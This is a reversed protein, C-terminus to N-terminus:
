FNFGLSASGGVGEQRGFYGFVEANIVLKGSDTPMMTLGIEGFGSFGKTEPPDTIPDGAYVGRIKGDFEHEGAAGVYFRTTDGAISRSLRAGVRARSSDVAEMEVKDGFDTVFDDPNARTWFYRGYAELDSKESLDFRHGLGLHAGYYGNYTEYSHVGPFQIWPDKTLSFENHFGGGRVSSEIFTNQAFLLKFLLGGGYHNVNGGGYVDGYKFIYSYTDYDGHGFEGFLGLTLQGFDYLTKKALVLSATVNNVDVESGTEVSISSAGVFAQLYVRDSLGFAVIKEFAGLSESLGQNVSVMAAGVSQSYTRTADATFYNNAMLPNNAKTQDIYADWYYRRLGATFAFDDYLYGHASGKSDYHPNGDSGMYTVAANLNQTQDVLTLHGLRLRKTQYPSLLIAPESDVRYDPDDAWRPRVNLYAEHQAMPDFGTLDVSGQSGDFTLMLHGPSVDKTDFRMFDNQSTDPAFTGNTEWSGRNIVDLNKVMYYSTLSANNYSYVSASTVFRAGPDFLMTNLSINDIGDLLNNSVDLTFLKNEFIEVVNNVNFDIVGGSSGNDIGKAIYITTDNSIIMDRNISLSNDGGAGAGSQGPSDAQIGKLGGAGSSFNFDLGNLVVDGDVTLTVSGGSGGAGGEGGFPGIAAKVGGAGGDGGDGSSVTMDNEFTVTVPNGTASSFLVALSSGTGGLGGKGGAGGLATVVTRGSDGGKGGEGGAGAIIETTKRVTLADTPTEIKVDTLGADTGDGGAGGTGGDGGM